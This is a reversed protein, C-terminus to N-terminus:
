AADIGPTVGDALRVHNWAPAAQRLAPLRSGVFWSHCIAASPVGSEPVSLPVLSQLMMVAPALTAVPERLRQTDSVPAKSMTPLTRSHTASQPSEAVLTQAVQPAVPSKLQMPPSPEIFKGPANNRPPSKPKPAPTNVTSPRKVGKLKPLLAPKRHTRSGYPRCAM